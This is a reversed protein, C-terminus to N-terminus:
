VGDQVFKLTVSVIRNVTPLFTFFTVLTKGKRLFGIVGSM